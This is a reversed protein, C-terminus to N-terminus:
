GNSTQYLVEACTYKESHWRQPKCVQPSLWPKIATSSLDYKTQSCTFFQIYNEQIIFIQTWGDGIFLLNKTFLFHFCSEIKAM